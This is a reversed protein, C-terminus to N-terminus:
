SSRHSRNTDVVKYICYVLLVAAAYQSPALSVQNIRSDIILGTIPYALELICSIHAPVCQLGKYYILLAVMGTSCAIFVLTGLQPLTIQTLQSQQGFLFVTALAFITTTSFRMFTAPLLSKRQLLQISFVTSSGWAIAAILAFVAATIYPTDGDIHVQGGPFTMFYGAVIAVSSWIWFQRKPREGLVIWASIITFIPQLKQILFVISLPIFHVRALAATIALTGILGSLISVVIVLLATNGQQLKKYPAQKSLLLPISLIIFGIFHEWFVIIAPPLSYLSSRLQGDVGWLVAAIVIFIYYM